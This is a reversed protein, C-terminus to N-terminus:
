TTKTISRSLDRARDNCCCRRLDRHDWDKHCRTLVRTLHSNTKLAVIVLILAVIAGLGGGFKLIGLM